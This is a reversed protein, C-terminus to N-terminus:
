VDPVAGSVLWGRSDDVEWTVYVDRAQGAAIVGIWCGFRGRAEIQDERCDFEDETLTMALLDGPIEYLSTTGPSALDSMVSANGQQWAALFAASSAYAHEIM